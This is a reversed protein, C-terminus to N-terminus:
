WYSIFGNAPIHVKYARKHPDKFVQVLCAFCFEHKLSFFRLTYRQLQLMKM